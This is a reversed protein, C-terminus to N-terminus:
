RKGGFQKKAFPNRGDEPVAIQNRLRGGKKGTAVKVLSGLRTVEFGNRDDQSVDWAEQLDELTIKRAKIRKLTHYLDTIDEKDSPVLKSVEVFWDLVPLFEAYKKEFMHRNEWLENVVKISKESAGFDNVSRLHPADAGNINKIAKIPKQIRQVVSGGGTSDSLVGNQVVSGGIRSRAITIRSKDKMKKKSTRFHLLKWDIRADDLQIAWSRGENLKPDNEEVIVVLGFRVLEVMAARTTAESLGTNSVIQSIAIRDHIKHWGFTKRVIFIYCKIEDGSLYRNIKDVLINPTQFSNPIIQSYVKAGKTDSM